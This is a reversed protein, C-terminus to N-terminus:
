SLTATERGRRPMRPWWGPVRRRYAEYEAGFRDALLPEEYFRVFLMCFALFAAAWVLLVPRSILLAQGAIATTAAVYMPNRVYGYVGGGIVRRSTVTFPWPIGIGETVFRLFAGIVVIGGAAILVVGAARVALPYPGGPQYRTIVWPVLVLALGVFPFFLMSGVAAAWKPTVVRRERTGAGAVPASAAARAHREALEDYARQAEEPLDSRAVGWRLAYTAEQEATMKMMQGAEKAKPPVRDELAPPHVPGPASDRNAGQV